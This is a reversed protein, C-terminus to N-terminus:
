RGMQKIVESTKELKCAKLVQHLMGEGDTVYIAHIAKPLYDTNLAQGVWRKWDAIKESDTM